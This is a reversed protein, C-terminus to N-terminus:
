KGADRAEVKQPVIDLDADTDIEVKVMEATAKVVGGPHISINLSTLVSALDEGSETYVHTNKATGDSVIRVRM